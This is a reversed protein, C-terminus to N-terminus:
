LWLHAFTTKRSSETLGQQSSQLKQFIQDLSLNLYTGFTNQM